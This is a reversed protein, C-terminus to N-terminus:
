HSAFELEPAQTQSPYLFLERMHSFPPHIENRKGIEARKETVHLMSYWPWGRVSIDGWRQHGPGPTSPHLLRPIHMKVEVAHNVPPSTKLQLFPKLPLISESTDRHIVSSPYLKVQCGQLEASSPLAPSPALQRGALQLETTQTRCQQHAPRHLPSVARVAPADGMCGEHSGQTQQSGKRNAELFHFSYSPLPSLLFPPLSPLLKGHWLTFNFFFWKSTCYRLTTWSTARPIISDSRSAKRGHGQRPVSPSPSFNSTFDLLQQISKSLWQISKSLWAFQRQAWPPPPPTQCQKLGSVPGHLYGLFWSRLSFTLECNHTHTQTQKQCCVMEAKWQKSFVDIKSCPSWNEM